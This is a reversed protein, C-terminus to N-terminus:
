HAGTPGPDDAGPGTKLHQLLMTHAFSGHVLLEGTPAGAEPTGPLPPATGTYAHGTPTTYGITHRPGPTTRAARGPTEKACNCAGCLGEGNAASTPGGSRVPVVHDHHRLPADCWRTRYTRDRAALLRRIGEPLDQRPLGDRDAARHDPVHPAPAAM